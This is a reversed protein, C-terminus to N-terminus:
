GQQQHEIHGAACIFALGIGTNGSTPEIIITDKNILRDKEAVEIMSLTIRDKVSGAPNFKELKALLPIEPFPNIRNIRVLPTRGVLQGIDNYVKM